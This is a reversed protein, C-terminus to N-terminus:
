AARGQRMCRKGSDGSLGSYCAGRGGILAVPPRMARLHRRARLGRVEQFVTGAGLHISIMVPYRAFTVPARISGARALDPCSCRPPLDTAFPEIEAVDFNTDTAAFDKIVVQGQKGPIAVKM